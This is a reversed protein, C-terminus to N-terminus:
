MANYVCFLMFLIEICNIWGDSFIRLTRDDFHVGTILLPHAAKVHCKVVSQKAELEKFMQSVNWAFFLTLFLGTLM